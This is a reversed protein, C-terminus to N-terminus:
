WAPGVFILVAGAIALSFAAAVCAWALGRFWTPPRQRRRAAAVLQEGYREIV